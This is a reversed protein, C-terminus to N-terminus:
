KSCKKTTADLAIKLDPDSKQESHKQKIPFNAARSCNM